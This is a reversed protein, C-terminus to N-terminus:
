TISRKSRVLGLTKLLEKAQINGNDIKLLARLKVAATKHDRLQVLTRALEFLSDMRDPTLKLVNTFMEKAKGYSGLDYYVMGLVHLSDVYRPKASLVAQLSHTPSFVVHLTDIIQAVRM